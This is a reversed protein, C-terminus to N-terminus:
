EVIGFSVLAELIEARPNEITTIHWGTIKEALSTYIHSVKMMEDVPVRTTAALARREDMRKKNLLVDRDYTHLLFQRFGEKSNEVIRGERHAQADWMRSSDPTGVEDIFIMYYRERNDHCYGFEFKTDVFIQGMEACQKSIIKFGESLLMEYWDIDEPNLFGFDQYNMLIQEKTLNVDDEEPVGPIGRVIGKTTPTILIEDLRQNEQLGDPLVIGCFKRQGQAYARWLSGTIYQRAIAEIKLPQAREVIWVLPHPIELLHNRALGECGFENFWHEAIMNLAAGKYPVGKLGEEAQWNCDFASIRDSMIMVGLKASPDVGHYKQSLRASDEPTLWYVSRVKGNHVLGEHHIPFTHTETLAHHELSMAKNVQFNEAFGKM